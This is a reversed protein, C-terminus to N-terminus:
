TNLTNIVVIFLLFSFCIVSALAETQRNSAVARCISALTEIRPASAPIPCHHSREGGVLTDRTWNNNNNNHYNNNNDANKYSLANVSVPAVWVIFVLWIASSFCYFGVNKFGALWINPVFCLFRLKNKAISVRSRHRKDIFQWTWVTLVKVPKFKITDPVWSQISCNRLPLQNTWFIYSFFAAYSHWDHIYLALTHPTTSSYQQSQKLSVMSITESFPLNWLCIGQANKRTRDVRGSFLTRPLLAPENGSCRSTISGLECVVPAFCFIPGCHTSPTKHKIKNRETPISNEFILM